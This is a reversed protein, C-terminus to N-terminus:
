QADSLIRKFLLENNVVQAAEQLNKVVFDPRRSTTINWETEHGNKLLITRCGALNGAEMDNLIDGIMWSASLDLEHDLAARLIMGPQPKRCSCEFAYESVKGQPHHPCYYFGNLVINASALIERLRDELKGLASEPFFGRAIGSQNTVVILQYGMEQFMRLAELAGDSLRILDSDVNYPIDEILTGGKDLVVAKSKMMSSPTYRGM